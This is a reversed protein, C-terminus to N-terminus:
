GRLAGRRLNVRRKRPRRGRSARQARHRYGSGSEARRRLRSAEVVGDDAQALLDRGLSRRDEIAPHRPDLPLLENGARPVQGVVDGEAVMVQALKLEPQHRESDRRQATALRAHHRVQVCRDTGQGREAPLVVAGRLGIRRGEERAVLQQAALGVLDEPGPDAPPRDPDHDGEGGLGGAVGGQDPPQGVRPHVHRPDVARVVVRGGPLRHGGLDSARLRLRAPRAPDDEVQGSGARPHRGGRDGVVGAHAAALAHQHRPAGTGTSAGGSCWNWHESGSASPASSSPAATQTLSPLSPRVTSVLVSAPRSSRTVCARSLPSRSRRSRARFKGPVSSRSSGSVASSRRARSAM